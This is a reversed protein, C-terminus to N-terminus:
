LGKVMRYFEYRKGGLEISHEREFSYGLKKYVAIAVENDKEVDLAIRKAGSERALEEAKLMLAKGIGRERFEPYVAVNSIYYDSKELKGPGSAASIFAPLQKLFDFGLTKLMLWGTRKEEREKTRWDYGLLMGATSNEYFAFVVHEHSFLNERELFLVKFLEKFKRGLLDPFYEPASMEMLEAFHEAEKKTGEAPKIVVALNGVLLM